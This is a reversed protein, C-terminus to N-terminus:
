STHTDEEAQALVEKGRCLWALVRAVAYSLGSVTAAPIFAIKEKGLPFFFVLFVALGLLLGPAVLWPRQREERTFLAHLVAPLFIMLVSAAGVILDVIDPIAKALLVALVGFVVALIRTM